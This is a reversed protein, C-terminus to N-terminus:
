NHKSQCFQKLRPHREALDEIIQQRIEDATFSDIWTDFPDHKARLWKITEGIQRQPVGLELLLYGSFKGRKEKEIAMDEHIKSILESVGFYEVPDPLEHISGDPASAVALLFKRYHDRIANGSAAKGSGDGTRKLTNKTVADSDYAYMGSNYYPSGLVHAFVDTEKEPKCDILGSMGFYNLILAPDHSLIIRKNWLRSSSTYPKGGPRPGSEKGDIPMLLGVHTYRLGYWHSFVGIIRGLDGHSFYMFAANYEEPAVYIMDIQMLLGEFRHSFSIVSSNAVIQEPNFLTRIVDITSLHSLCPGTHLIDLDGFDTKEARETPTGFRRLHGSLISHIQAKLKMYVAIPIREAGAIAHGGM